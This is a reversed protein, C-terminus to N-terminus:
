LGQEVMDPALDSSTVDEKSGDDDSPLNFSDASDQSVASDFVFNYGDEISEHRKREKGAENSGGLIAVIMNQFSASDEESLVHLTTEDDKDSSGAGIIKVHVKVSNPDVGAKQLSEKLSHELHKQQKTPPLKGVGEKELEQQSLSRVRMKWGDGEKGTKDAAGHRPTTTPPAQVGGGKVGEGDEVSGEEKKKEGDEEEEEGAEEEEEEGEVAKATADEDGLKAIERDMNKMEKETHELKELLMSLSGALQRFAMAENVEGGVEAEAEEIIDKFQSTVAKKVRDKIDQLRKQTMAQKDQLYKVEREFENLESEIAAEFGNDPDGEEEKQKSEQQQDEKNLQQLIKDFKESMSKATKEDQAPPKYKDSGEKNSMDMNSLIGQPDMLKEIEDLDKMAKWGMPLDSKMDSSGPDPVSDMTKMEKGLSKKLISNVSDTLGGEISKDEEQAQALVKEREQQEQQAKAKALAEEEKKRLAEVHQQYQIYQQDTLLPACVIPIPQTPTPSKLHPHSCIRPTHVTIVYACTEPEDVRVIYDDETEECLYRVETERGKGTLDCKSGNTYYQSHYRGSAIKSRVRSERLTENKWDFDSQFHGLYMVNGRIQGDEIHYQRVYKGYCIEYTWWDKTKLLCSQQSLPRLLEVVGTELAIKEEEEKQQKQEQHTPYNCQYQQGHRSTVLIATDPYIEPIVIPEKLINIGYNISQLEEIDMFSHVVYILAVILLCISETTQSAM